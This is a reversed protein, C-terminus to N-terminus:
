RYFREVLLGKTEKAVKEIGGYRTLDTLNCCRLLIRAKDRLEKDFEYKIIHANAVDEKIGDSTLADTIGIEFRPNQLDNANTETWYHLLPMFAQGLHTGTLFLGRQRKQRDNMGIPVYRLVRPTGLRCGALIRNVERRDYEDCRARYSLTDLIEVSKSSPSIQRLKEQTEYGSSSGLVAWIAFNSDEQKTDELSFALAMLPVETFDILRTPIEYHQMLALWEGNVIPADQRSVDAWQRFYQIAAKERERFDEEDIKLEPENYIPRFVLREFSSAIDWESNAQGRYLWKPGLLEEGQYSIRMHSIREMRVIMELWKYLDNVRITFTHFPLKKSISEEM